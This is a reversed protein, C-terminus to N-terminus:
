YQQLYSPCRYTKLQFSLHVAFVLYQDFTTSNGRQKGATGLARGSLEPSRDQLLFAPNPVMPDNPFKDAGVYTQSVDDLYDTLTLRDAIEVGLNIGPVIWYKIGMGIPACLSFHSYRREQFGANQGETGLDRLSYNKGNLEAYPSYYFAGVGATLYPTFRSGLEGTAYRFFNFEAQASVELIKSKFSLNRLKQYDNSNYTDSYGVQTALFGTRLAIYPTLHFRAFAGAAPRIYQFGYHDNLDGFYQSGGASIGYEKGSFYTQSQATLGTLLLLLSFFSKM